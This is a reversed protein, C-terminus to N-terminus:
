RHLCHDGPISSFTLSVKRLPSEGLYANIVAAPMVLMCNLIDGCALSLVYPYAVRTEWGHRDRKLAVCLALNAYVGGVPIALLLIVPWPAHYSVWASSCSDTWNSTMEGMVQLSYSSANPMALIMSDLGLGGTMM